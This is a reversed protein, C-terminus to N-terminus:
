DERAAWRGYAYQMEADRVLTVLDPAAALGLVVSVATRVYEGFGPDGVRLAALPAGIAVAAAFAAGIVGSLKNRHLLFATLALLVALFAFGPSRAFAAEITLLVVGIALNGVVRRRSARARKALPQVEYPGDAEHEVKDLVDGRKVVNAHVGAGDQVGRRAQSSGAVSGAVSGAHRM